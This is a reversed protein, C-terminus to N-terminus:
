QLFWRLGFCGDGVSPVMGPLQWNRIPFEWPVPEAILFNIIQAALIGIVITLQNIAVFRGRLEAPGIRRYVHPIANM